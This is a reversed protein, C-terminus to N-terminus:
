QCVRKRDEWKVHKYGMNKNYANMDEWYAKSGVIRPKGTNPWHGICKTTEPDIGRHKDYIRAWGAYLEIKWNVDYNGDIINMVRPNQIDM